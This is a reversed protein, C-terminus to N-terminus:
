ARWPVSSPQPLDGGERKILQNAFEIVGWGKLDKNIWVRIGERILLGLGERILGRVNLAVGGKKLGKIGRNFNSEGIFPM